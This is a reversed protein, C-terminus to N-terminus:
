QRAGSPCALLAGSYICRCGKLIVLVVRVVPVLDWKRLNVKTRTRTRTTFPPM